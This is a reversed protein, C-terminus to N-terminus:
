HIAVRDGNGALVHRDVCNYAVNLEGGVFWKAVPADSFDLVESFPTHWHLREAQTAWFALRDEDAAAQLEPGANATATFEPSPPYVQPVADSHDSQDTAGSAQAANGTAGSAQAASTM